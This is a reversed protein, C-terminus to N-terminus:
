GGRKYAETYKIIENMMKVSEAPHKGVATEGSLMVYDTGDFIANAVDSVEARTPVFETTMSDLMQTAVVVPKSRKRCKRILEKQIIPVGYIPVCVGLDGRAIIIGDAAAIIADINHLAERSEIKAFIKCQPHRGDLIKRLAAIDIASRVFSQALYDVRNHVAFEADRRDKATLSSFGLKIGPVNIGKRSHLVGGIVVETKIESRSTSKIKLIIKGDDIYVPSGTKFRKLRGSYYFHVRSNAAEAKQTLYLTQGKKLLLPRRLRGIRIRFGELDQMIKIARKLKRNLGRVLTLRKRHEETTGHSFNLRVVDLGAVFMKRLVTENGSAPGFTAIIKTKVM